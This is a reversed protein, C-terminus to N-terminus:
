SVICCRFAGTFVIQMPMAAEIPDNRSAAPVLPLRLARGCERIMIWWGEPPACPVAASM